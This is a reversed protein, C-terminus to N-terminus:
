KFWCSLLSVTLRLGERWAYCFPTLVTLRFTFACILFQIVCIQRSTVDSSPDFIKLPFGNTTEM